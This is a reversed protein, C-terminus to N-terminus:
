RLIEPQAERCIMYLWQLIFLQRDRVYHSLSIGAAEFASILRQSDPQQEPVAPDFSQDESDFEAQWLIVNSLSPYRTHKQGAIDHLWHCWGKGIVWEVLPSMDIILIELAPPLIDELKAPNDSKDSAIGMTSMVPLFDVPIVVQRLKKFSKFNFRPDEAEYDDDNDFRYVDWLKCLFLEELSTSQLNLADRFSQAGPSDPWQAETTRFEIHFSRLEMPWSLIEILEAGPHVCNSFSLSKINSTRARDIGSGTPFNSSEESWLQIDAISLQRLSPIRCLAYLLTMMGGAASFNSELDDYWLEISSIGKLTLIQPRYMMPSLHIYPLPILGSLIDAMQLDPGSTEWVFGAVVVHSRLIRSRSITDLFLTLDFIETVRELIDRYTRKDVESRICQQYKAM